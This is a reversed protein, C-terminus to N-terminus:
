NLGNVREAALRNVWGILGDILVGENKLIDSGKAAKLTGGTAGVEGGVWRKGESM